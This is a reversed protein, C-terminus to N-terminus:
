DPGNSKKKDHVTLRFTAEACRGELKAAPKKFNRAVADMAQRMAIETQDLEAAGHAYSIFQAYGFWVGNRLCEQWFLSKHEETPFDFFTRCPFGKLGVKDSLGQEAVVRDFRARFQEGTSWIATVAGLEEIRRITALAMRCALPNAAFTSSVFCGKTLVQMLDRKGCVVAMPVVGNTICKGLCALDPTVGYYKQASLGPTRFGTVVEDFILVAGYQHALNRVGLLFGAQPAEFVYPEMIVAAPAPGAKLLKNLGVLDNYVFPAIQQKEAETTGANHPCQATYFSSWGHYGCNGSWVLRGNRRVMVIHNPVTVCYVMGHYEVEEPKGSRLNSEDSGDQISLHYIEGQRKTRGDNRAFGNNKRKTLCGAMGLKLLVEQMDDALRKSATYFKRMRGNEFTGDGKVMAEAFPLLFQPSLQKVWYPVHKDHCKGLPRLYEVMEKSSFSIHHGNQCPQFGLERILAMIESAKNPNKKPDQSITVRYEVRGCKKYANSSGETLYWALFKVFPLVSFRTLGKTLLSHHEGPNRRSPPAMCPPIEVTEVDTCHWECQATMKTYTRHGLEKRAESLRFATAGSGSTFRRYIMHDPTVMLDCAIGKFHVMKGDFRYAHTKEVAHYELSNTQPNLTAVSEGVTVSSVPKFGDATLIETHPDYCCLIRERGTAARAIKVAAMCAETGTNVFRVQEACPVLLGLKEALVGEVDHPCSLPTGEDYAALFEERLRRDGYGLVVAGLGLTYDVYEKGGAVCYAGHAGQWEKPHYGDVYRSALKSMTSAGDPILECRRKWDM